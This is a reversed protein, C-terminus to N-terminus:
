KYLDWAHLLSVSIAALNVTVSDGTTAMKPIEVKSKNHRRWYSDLIEVTNKKDNYKKLEAKASKTAQIKFYFLLIQKLVPQNLIKKSSVELKSRALM